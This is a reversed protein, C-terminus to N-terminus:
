IALKVGVSVTSWVHSVSSSRGYSAGEKCARILIRGLTSWSNHPLHVVLKIPENITEETMVSDSEESIQSVMSKDWGEMEKWARMLMRNPPVGKPLSNLGRELALRELSRYSTPRWTDSPSKNLDIVRGLARATCAVKFWLTPDSPDLESADCYSALALRLTKEKTEGWLCGSCHKSQQTAQGQFLNLVELSQVPKRDLMDGSSSHCCSCGCLLLDAYNVLSLYAIQKVTNKHAASLKKWKSVSLQKQAMNSVEGSHNCITYWASTMNQVPIDETIDNATRINKFTRNPLLIPAMIIPDLLLSQELSTRASQAVKELTAKSEELKNAATDKNKHEDSTKETEIQMDGSKEAQTVKSIDVHSDDVAQIDTREEGQGVDVIGSNEDEDDVAATNNENCIQRSVRHLAGVAVMAASYSSTLRAVAAEPSEEKRRKKKKRRKRGASADAGSPRTGIDHLPKDGHISETTSREGSSDSDWDSDQQPRTRGSSSNAAAWM